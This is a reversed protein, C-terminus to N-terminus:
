QSFLTYKIKGNVGNEKWYYEIKFLSKNKFEKVKDFTDDSSGDDIILWIFNKVTQAMLSNFARELTKARNYTPTFVTIEEM